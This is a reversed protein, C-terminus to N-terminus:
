GDGQRRVGSGQGTDGGEVIRYGLVTPEEIKEGAKQRRVQKIM